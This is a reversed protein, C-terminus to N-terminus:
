GYIFLPEVLPEYSMFRPRNNSPTPWMHQLACAHRDLMSSVHEPTYRTEDSGFIESMYQALARPDTPDLGLITQRDEFIGLARQHLGRMEENLYVTTRSYM